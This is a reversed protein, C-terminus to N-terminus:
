FMWQERKRLDAAGQVSCGLGEASVLELFQACTEVIEFGVGEAFRGIPKAIEAEDAISTGEAAVFCHAGGPHEVVDAATPM